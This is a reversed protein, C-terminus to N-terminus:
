GVVKLAPLRVPGETLWRNEESPWKAWEAAWAHVAFPQVRSTVNEWGVVGTASEIRGPDTPDPRIVVYKVQGKSLFNVAFRQGDDGAWEARFTMAPTVTIQPYRYHDERQLFSLMSSLSHPSGEDWEEGDEEQVCELLYQLRRTLQGAYKLQGSSLREIQGRLQATPTRLLDLDGFPGIWPTFSFSGTISSTAGTTALQLGADHGGVLVDVGQLHFSQAESSTGFLTLWGTTGRLNDTIVNKAM